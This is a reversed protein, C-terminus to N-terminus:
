LSKWTILCTPLSLDEFQESVKGFHLVKQLANFRRNM